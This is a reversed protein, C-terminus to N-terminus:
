PALIETKRGASILGYGVLVDLGGTVRNPTGEPRDPDDSVVRGRWAMLQGWFYTVLDVNSRMIAVQEAQTFENWFDAATDWIKRADITAQWAALADTLQQETVADGPALEYEDGRVVWGASITGASQLTELSKVTEFHTM